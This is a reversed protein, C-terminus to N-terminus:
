DTRELGPWLDGAHHRVEQSLVYAVVDPLAKRGFTLVGYGEQWAFHEVDPGRLTNVLHSSGGKWLRVVESVAMSPPISAAVHMHDAVIGVAHVFVGRERSSARIIGEIPGIDDFRLLPSRGRTAWIVHYFCQHWSM